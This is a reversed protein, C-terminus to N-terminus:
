EACAQEQYYWVNMIRNNELQYVSVSCQTNTANESTWYAQEIATVFNGVQNVDLLTSQTSPFDKFYQTMATKLEDHGSAEIFVADDAVSMWLIKPSSHLLMGDINKQNYAKLFADVVSKPEQSNASALTLFLTALLLLYRM